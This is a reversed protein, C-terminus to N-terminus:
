IEGQQFKPATNIALSKREKFTHKRKSSIFERISQKQQELQVPEPISKLEELMQKFSQEMRKITEDEKELKKLNYREEKERARLFAQQLELEKKKLDEEKKTVEKDRLKIHEKEIRVNKLLEEFRLHEKSVLKMAENIVHEPLESKRAIEFAYSSGPKGTELVYEPKLGQEDFLMSGNLIGPHNSAFSKLNAYHTTVVGFVKLENLKNLSAEAIAGGMAPDTGTGFEDILILTQKNGYKIFERM